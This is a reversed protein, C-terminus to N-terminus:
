KSQCCEILRNQLLRKKRAEAIDNQYNDKAPYNGNLVENPTLGYLKGHPKDNYDDVSNSLYRITDNLDKLDRKFLYYYKIHKNVAEVMSNSQIIDKQAILQKINERNSVFTSVEGHNEPGGDTVLKTDLRIGHIQIAEKLVTM